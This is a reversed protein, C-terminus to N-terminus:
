IRSYRCDGFSSKSRLFSFWVVILRCFLCNRHHRFTKWYWYAHFSRKLLLKRTEPRHSRWGVQGSGEATAASAEAPEIAACARGEAPEPCAREKCPRFI